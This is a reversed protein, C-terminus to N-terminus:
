PCSALIEWQQEPKDCKVNDSREAKIQDGDGVVIFKAGFINNESVLCNGEMKLKQHAVPVLPVYVLVVKPPPLIADIIADGTDVVPKVVHEVASDIVAKGTDVVPKVVMNEVHKVVPKAINEVHKVVNGVVNLPNLLDLFRDTPQDISRRRLPILSDVEMILDRYAPKLAGKYLIFENTHDCTDALKPIHSGDYRIMKGTGKNRIVFKGANPLTGAPIEDKQKRVCFRYENFQVANPSCEQNLNCIKSLSSWEYSCCNPKANCQAACDNTTDVNKLSGLTSGWGRVDGPILDFGTACETSSMRECFQGDAVSNAVPNCQQNLNCREETPYWEYSCCSGDKFENCKRACEQNSKPGDYAPLINFFDLANVLPAPPVFTM